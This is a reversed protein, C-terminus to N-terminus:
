EKTICESFNSGMLVMNEYGNVDINMFVNSSTLNPLIEILKDILIPSRGEIKFNPNGNTKIWTKM